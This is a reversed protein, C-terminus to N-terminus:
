VFQLDFLGRFNVAKQPQLSKLPKFKKKHGFCFIKGFNFLSYKRVKQSVIQGCPEWECFRPQKINHRYIFNGMTRRTIRTIGRPKNKLNILTMTTMLFKM